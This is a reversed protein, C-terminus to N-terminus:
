CNCNDGTPQMPTVSDPRNDVDCSGPPREDRIDDISEYYSAGRNHSTGPFDIAYMRRFAEDVGNKTPEQHYATLADTDYGCIDINRYRFGLHFSKVKQGPDYLYFFKNFEMPDKIKLIAKTIEAGYAVIRDVQQYAFELLQDSAVFGDTEITYSM